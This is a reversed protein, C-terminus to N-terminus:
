GSIGDGNTDNEDVRSLIDADSVAELLGLGFVPAAVRPSLMVNGPFSTYPNNVTYSPFRLKYSAGDDFYFTQDNYAISVDAEKTVGM